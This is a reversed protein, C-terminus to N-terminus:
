GHWLGAKELAARAIGKALRHGRAVHRLTVVIAAFQQVEAASLSIGMDAQMAIRM